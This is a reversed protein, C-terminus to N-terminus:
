NSKNIEGDMWEIRAHLWEKLYEIESEYTDRKEFGPANPWVYSGLIPWREFNKAQSKTLLAATEDIQEFMKPLYNRKVYNWREGFEKAFEEDEFLRSFWASYRTHWGKPNDADAYDINGGGIDFDWVPGMCLKGERPKYFYVSTHFGSDINKFLENVLYWDIFTATDIYKRYGNEPDKFNEAFMADETENVYNSIYEYAEPSMNKEGPQKISFFHEVSWNIRKTEFIIEDKSYKDASNVELIYSGSLDEGSTPPTVLTGTNKDKIQEEAKIKPLDLRGKDIKIREGFCYTGMYDGNLILDAFRLKPSFAAGMARYLEYAIYNRMLTKDSYNGILLWDKSAAMDLIAYKDTIEINYSKKPTGFSSNGRGKIEIAGSFLGDAYQDFPNITSAIIQMEANLYKTKSTVPRNDEVNIIILPLGNDLPNLSIEYDRMAGTKDNVATVFVSEGESITFGSEIKIEGGAEYLESLRGTKYTVTYEEPEKKGPLYIQSFCDEYKDYFAREGDIYVELLEVDDIYPLEASASLYLAPSTNKKRVFLKIEYNKGATMKTAKYTGNLLEGPTFDLLVYGNELATQYDDTKGWSSAAIAYEVEGSLETWDLTFGRVRIDRVVMEADEPFKEDFAKKAYANENKTMDALLLVSAFLLVLLTAMFIIKLKTFLINSKDYLM